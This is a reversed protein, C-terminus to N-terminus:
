QMDHKFKYTTSCEECEYKQKRAHSLRHIKLQSLFPFTKKCRRCTHGSMRSKLLHMYQHQRLGYPTTYKKTCLTCYHTLVHIKKYHLNIAKRSKTRIHCDKSPCKFTMIKNEKHHVIVSSQKKHIKTTTIKKLPIAKEKKNIFTITGLLKEELEYIEMDESDPYHSTKSTEQCISKDDLRHLSIFLEKGLILYRLSPKTQNSLTREIEYIETDESDPYQTSEITEPCTKIDDIRHISIYLEKELTLRKLSPIGRKFLKRAKTHLQTNKCLLSFECKGLYALHIDSLGIALNHTINPINLTTWLGSTHYVTIHINLFVGCTFVQLEDAPVKVTTIGVYWNIFSLKKRALYTSSILSYYKREQKIHRLVDNRLNKHNYLVGM